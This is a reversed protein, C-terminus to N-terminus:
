RIVRRDGPHRHWSSSSSWSVHTQRAENDVKFMEGGCSRVAPCNPNQRNRPQERNHNGCAGQAISLWFPLENQRAGRRAAAGLTPHSGKGHSSHGRSAVAYSPPVEAAAHGHEVVLIEFLAHKKM